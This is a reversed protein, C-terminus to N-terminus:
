VISPSTEKPLWSASPSETGCEVDREGTDTLVKCELRTDNRTDELVQELQEFFSLALRQAFHIVFALTRKQLDVVLANRIQQIGRFSVQLDSFVFVPRMCGSKSLLRNLRTLM